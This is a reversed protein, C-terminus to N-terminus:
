ARRSSATRSLGAHTRGLFTNECVEHNHKLCAVSAGHKRALSGYEAATCMLVALSSNGCAEDHAGNM